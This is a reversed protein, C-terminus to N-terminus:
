KAGLAAIISATNAALSEQLAALGFGLVDFRKEMRMLQQQQQGFGRSVEGVLDHFSQEMAGIRGDIGALRGDQANLRSALNDMQLRMLRINRTIEQLSGALLTLDVTDSM